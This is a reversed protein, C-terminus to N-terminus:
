FLPSIFIIERLKLGLVRDNSAGVIISLITCGLTSVTFILSFVYLIYNESVTFLSSIVTTKLFIDSVIGLTLLTLGFIRIILDITKLKQKRM